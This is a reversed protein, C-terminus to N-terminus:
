IKQKNTDGITKLMVEVASEHFKDRTEKEQTGEREEALKIAFVIASKIFKNRTEERKQCLAELREFWDGPLYTSVTGGRM